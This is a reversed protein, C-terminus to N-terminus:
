RAKVVATQAPAVVRGCPLELLDPLSSYPCAVKFDVQCQFFVLLFTCGNCVTPRSFTPLVPGLGWNQRILRVTLTRATPGILVKNVKDVHTVIELCKNFCLLRTQPGPMYRILRRCCLRCPPTSEDLWVSCSSHPSYNRTGPEQNAM